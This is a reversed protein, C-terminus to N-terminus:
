VFLLLQKTETCSMFGLFKFIFLILFVPLRVQAKSISGDIPDTYEFNDAKAITFTKGQQTFQKGIFSPDKVLANLDVMMQDAPKSDVNEYDYRFPPM